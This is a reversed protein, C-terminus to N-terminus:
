SISVIYDTAALGNENEAVFVTYDIAAFGNAGEVPVILKVFNQKVNLGMGETDIVSNLTATGPVAFMVRKTGAPINVTGFDRTNANKNVTNRIFASDIASTCDTGVYEFSSRYGVVNVEATQTISDGQLAGAIANNGINTVPTYPSNSYSCVGTITAYSKSGSEDIQIPTTLTFSGNLETDTENEKNESIAYTATIGTSITKDEKSGYQYFGSNWEGAWQYGNIYNGIEATDELIASASLNYSPSIIEPQTESAFLTTFFEKLSKGTASVTTNGNILEQVTGVTTTFVFDEDFYVNEANYNGDMAVWKSGDYIYATHQYNDKAIPSKVIAVDGATLLKGHVVQTIADIHSDNANSLIIQFVQAPTTTSIDLNEAILDIIDQLTKAIWNTGDFVLFDNSQANTTIVDALDDLKTATMVVDGGSILRKGLYLKGVGSDNEPYIFYLTNDDIRGAGILSDYADQSGRLFKVYNVAM